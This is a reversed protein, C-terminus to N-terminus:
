LLLSKGKNRIGLESETTAAVADPLNLMSCVVRADRLDWWWACIPKGDVFVNGYNWGGGELKVTVCM